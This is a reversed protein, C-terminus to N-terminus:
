VHRTDKQMLEVSKWNFTKLFWLFERSDLETLCVHAYQMPFFCVFCCVVLVSCSFFSFCGIKTEKHTLTHTHTKGGGVCVRCCKGLRHPFTEGEM